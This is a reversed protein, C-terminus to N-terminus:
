WCPQKGLPVVFYNWGVEKFTVAICVSMTAGRREYGGMRLLETGNVM